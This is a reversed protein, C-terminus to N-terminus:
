NKIKSIDEAIFIDKQLLCEEIPSLVREVKGPPIWFGARYLYSFPCCGEWRLCGVLCLPNESYVFANETIKFNTDKPSFLTIPDNPMIPRGCWACRIAMRALCNPCFEPNGKEKFFLSYKEGFVYIIKRRSSVHGCDCKVKKRFFNPFLFFLDKVLMKSM